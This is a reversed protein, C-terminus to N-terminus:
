KLIIMKKTERYDRVTLTYFYIGSSVAEGLSNRGDWMVSFYGPGKEEDVLTRILQGKLNYIKLLVRSYDSSTQPIAYDITTFPNFPNPYNQSLVFRTPLEVGNEADVFAVKAEINTTVELDNIVARKLIVKTSKQQQTPSKALFRMKLIKGSASIGEVGAMAIYVKGDETGNDVIVFDKTLESVSSSEYELLNPDYELTLLISTAEAVDSHLSIPVTITEGPVTEISGISLFTTTKHLNKKDDSSHAGSAAFITAGWDGTPDGLLYATFDLGTTDGIIEITISSDG